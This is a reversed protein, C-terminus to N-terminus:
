VDPLNWSWTLRLDNLRQTINKGTDHCAVLYRNNKSWTNGFLKGVLKDCFVSLGLNEFRVDCWQLPENLFEYLLKLTGMLHVLIKGKLNMYYGKMKFAVLSETQYFHGCTGIIAEFDDLLLHSSKYVATQGGDKIMIVIKNGEYYDTIHWKRNYCLRNCSDGSARGADYGSCLATLIETARYNNKFVDYLSIFLFLNFNLITVFVDDTDDDYVRVPSDYFM